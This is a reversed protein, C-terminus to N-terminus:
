NTIEISSDISNQLSLNARVEITYTNGSVLIASADYSTNTTDSIKVNDIYISYSLNPQYSTYKSIDPADWSVVGNSEILNDVQMDEYIAKYETGNIRLGYIQELKSIDNVTNFDIEGKRLYQKTSSITNKNLVYNNSHYINDGDTWVSNGYLYTIGNWTKQSWTSTAKDLVYQKYSDGDSYYINEGDTWVRNGQIGTNWTKKSWTSTTKDLVYQSDNSFYINEGDTWIYLADLGNGTILGNWVKSKWSSTAKNLVGQSKGYSYYINEGDTWIYDGYLYTIEKWTKKSWTSTAKDLVYQSYSDGNSYYINEGDTWICRGDMNAYGSWTKPIWTSTSKDLVYQQSTTNSYYINEGDTWIYRSDFNTLGSWTKPSWTSTPKNLLCKSSVDPATASINPHVINYIKGENYINQLIETSDGEQSNFSIIDGKKLVPNVSFLINKNLVYQNSDYSYYINEGDTWIKDGSFYSEGSWTKPSWTSTAKDLVYHYSSGSSYYVNEGDTWTYRGNFNTLGIWTKRSWTSTSKDLVYQRLDLSYYINEGDTWVNSGSFSTLGSWVKSTWTSTSKDLVYQDSNYSLYINEGDTWVCDGTFNTLGSWTKRAWTSTSKDLVYQSSGSSCYINEGDTWINYGYFSTYGKWLILEWTSKNLNLVRQSSGKSYYINEGDTWINDGDFNKFTGWWTKRSWNNTFKEFRSSTGDIEATKYAEVRPAAYTTGQISITKIQPADVSATSGQVVTTPIKYKDQDVQLGTLIEENGQMLPNAVVESGGDPKDDIYKKVGDSTVLNNSNEVPYNDFSLQKQKAQLRTSTEKILSEIIKDQTM